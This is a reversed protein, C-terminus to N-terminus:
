VNLFLDIKQVNKTLNPVKEPSDYYTESPKLLYFVSRVSYLAYDLRSTFNRAFLDITSNM